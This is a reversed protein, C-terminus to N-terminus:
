LYRRVRARHREYPEGFTEAHYREEPLLHLALGVGILTVFVLPPPVGVAAGGDKSRAGEGRVADAVM